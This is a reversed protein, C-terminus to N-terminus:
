APQQITVPGPQVVMHRRNREICYTGYDFPLEARGDTLQEM